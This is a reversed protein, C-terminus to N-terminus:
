AIFEAVTELDAGAISYRGLHKNTIGKLEYLRKMTARSTTNSIMSMCNSIDNMAEEFKSQRIYINARNLLNQIQSETDLMPADRHKIINDLMRAAVIDNQTQIYCESMLSQIKLDQDNAINWDSLADEYRQLMYKALGRCSLDSDPLAMISGLRDLDSVSDHFRGLALNLRARERLAPALYPGGCGSYLDVALAQGGLRMACGALMYNVYQSPSSLSRYVDFADQVEGAYFLCDALLTTTSDNHDKSEILMKADGFRGLFFLNLAKEFGWEQSKSLSELSGFPDNILRQLRGLHFWSPICETDREVARTHYELAGNLDGIAEKCIGCNHMLISSDLKQLADEFDRLAGAVDGLMHKIHGRFTLTDATGPFLELTKSLTAIAAPLDNLSVEVRSKIIRSGYSLPDLSIAHSIAELASRPTTDAHLQSLAMEVYIGPDMSDIAEAAKLTKLSEDIFGLERELQCKLMLADMTMPHRPEASICLKVARLVDEHAHRVYDAEVKMIRARAVYVVPDNPSISVAQTLDSVANEFLGTKAYCASRALYAQTDRVDLDLVASFDAIARENESIEAFLSGRFRLIETNLPHRGAMESIQAITVSLEGSDFPKVLSQKVSELYEHIKKKSNQQSLRLADRPM